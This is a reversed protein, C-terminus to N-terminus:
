DLNLIIECFPEEYQGKDLNDLQNIAGDSLIAM